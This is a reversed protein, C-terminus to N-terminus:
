GTSPSSFREPVLDGPLTPAESQAVMNSSEDPFMNIYTVSQNLVKTSIVWYLRFWKRHCLFDHATVLLVTLMLLMLGWSQLDSSPGCDDMSSQGEFHRCTIQTRKWVLIEKLVDAIVKM